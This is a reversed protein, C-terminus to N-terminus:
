TGHAVRKGKVRAPLFLKETLENVKKEMKELEAVHTPEERMLDHLYMSVKALQVHIANRKDFRSVALHKFVSPSGFGRGASAYSKIFDRAIKSNLIACVYHAEDERGFAFLSTTDLPVILKTGYMTKYESVVAASLENTMRKWVVKYKAMTYNGIGFMAYFATREALQRVTNSGRSLLERKFHSLYAYTKPWRRRMESEDVPSQTRADQVMLINPGPKALWRKVDRGRVAPFVFKSEIRARVEKVKRKGRKAQNSILLENDPLREHVNIWYVGYPEARAGIHAVYDSQGELGATQNRDLETTTRWAGTTGGIPQATLSERKLLLRAEAWEIGTAL